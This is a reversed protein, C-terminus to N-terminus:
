FIKKYWNIIIPLCVVIMLLVLAGLIPPMFIDNIRTIKGLQRGAYTFIIGSPIVGIMTTWVFTSFRAFPILPLCRLILLFLWGREDILHNFRVLRSAFRMQLYSGILYRVVLFFITAGITAGIILYIVGFFVGFLYGGVITMVAAGPLCFLVVTIFSILYLLVTKWYNTEVQMRLWDSQTKIYEFTFCNKIGSFWIFAMVALVIIGIIFRRKAHPNKKFM